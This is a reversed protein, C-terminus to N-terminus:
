AKKEQAKKEFRDKNVLCREHTGEGIKEKEDFAVVDFKIKRGEVERVTAEICHTVVVSRVDSSYREIGAWVKLGLPTAAIHKV